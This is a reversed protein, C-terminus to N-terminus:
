DLRHLLTRAERLDPTDFGETFWDYIPRLLENARAGQGEDIWQRALSTAARLEWSKSDQERAVDIARQFSEEARDPRSQALHVEGEIRHLDSAIWCEGTVDMIGRAERISKMAEAPRGLRLLERAQETKYLPMFLWHGVSAQEDFTRQFEQLADAAGDRSQLLADALSGFVQWTPLGHQDSLTVVLLNSERLLKDDRCLFGFISWHFAGYCSTNVHGLQRAVLQSEAVLERAQDVHGLMWLNLAM